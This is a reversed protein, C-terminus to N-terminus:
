VAGPLKRPGFHAADRGLEEPSLGGEKWRAVDADKVHKVCDGLGKATFVEQWADLSM